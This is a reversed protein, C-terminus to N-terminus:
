PAFRLFLTDCAVGDARVVLKADGARVTVQWGAVPVADTLTANTNVRQSTLTYASKDILNGYRDRARVPYTLFDLVDGVRVTTDRSVYWGFTAVPGATVTASATDYTAVVGGEMGQVVAKAIGATTGHKFAFAANGDKDTSTCPVIPTLTVPGTVSAACVIAGVVPAGRLVKNQAWAKTPLLADTARQMWAVSGDSLRVLQGVVPVPLQATPATTTQNNGSVIGIKLAGTALGASDQCALAFLALLLIRRM